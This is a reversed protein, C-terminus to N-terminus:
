AFRSQEADGRVRMGSDKGVACSNELKISSIVARKLEKHPPMPVEIAYKPNPVRM